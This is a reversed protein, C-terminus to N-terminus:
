EGKKISWNKGDFHIVVSDWGIALFEESYCDLNELVEEVVRAGAKERVAQDFRKALIAYDGVLWMREVAFWRDDILVVEYHCDGHSFKRGLPLVKTETHLPGGFFNISVSEGKKFQTFPILGTYDDVEGVIRGSTNILYYSM